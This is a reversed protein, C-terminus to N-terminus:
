QKYCPKGEHDTKYTQASAQVEPPLERIIHNENIYDKYSAIISHELYMYNAWYHIAEKEPYKKVTMELNNYLTSESVEILTSVRTPYISLSGEGNKM